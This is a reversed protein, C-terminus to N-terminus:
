RLKAIRSKMNKVAGYQISFAQGVKLNLSIKYLKENLFRNRDPIFQHAINYFMLPTKRLQNKKVILHQAERFNELKWPNLFSKFKEAVVKKWFM